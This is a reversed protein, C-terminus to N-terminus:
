VYGLWRVLERIEIYILEIPIAFLIFTIFAKTIDINSNQIEELNIFLVFTIWLGWVILYEM